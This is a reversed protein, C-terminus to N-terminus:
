QLIWYAIIKAVDYPINCFQRHKAALLILICKEYNYFFQTNHLKKHYNYIKELINKASTNNFTNIIHKTDKGYANFMEDPINNEIHAITFDHRIYVNDQVTIDNYFRFSSLIKDHVDYSIIIAKYNKKLIRFTFLKSESSYINMKHIFSIKIGILRCFYKKLREFLMAVKIDLLTSLEEIKKNQQLGVWYDYSNNLLYFNESHTLKEILNITEDRFWGTPWIPIRPRWTGSEYRYITHQDTIINITYSSPRTPRIFVNFIHLSDYIKLYASDKSILLSYKIDKTMFIENALKENFLLNVERRKEKIIEDVERVCLNEM